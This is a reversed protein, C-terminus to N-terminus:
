ISDNELLKVVDNVDCCDAHALNNRCRHLLKIRERDDSSFVGDFAEWMQNKLTGIELDIPSTIRVHFQEVDNRSLRETLLVQYREVIQIREMEILPFLTQVQARWLRHKLEELDGRRQYALIHDSGEDAGRAAYQKESAIDAIVDLPSQKQIDINDLFFSAIEADTDCISAAVSSLYKNWQLPMKQKSEVILSAFLQVDYVSVCDSFCVCKSFRSGKKAIGCRDEIVFLGKEICSLGYNKCFSLWGNVQKESLGKVWIVRDKLVSNDKLYMQITKNSRERYGNFVEQNAYKELLFLGIEKEKEALCDDTADIIEFLAEDYGSSNRFSDEVESRMTWRWPLDSPIDVVATMGNRLADVIGTVILQAGTMHKWWFSSWDTVSM